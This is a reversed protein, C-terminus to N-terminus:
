IRDYIFDLLEIVYSDACGAATIENKIEKATFGADKLQKITCEDNILKKSM